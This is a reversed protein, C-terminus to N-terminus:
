RATDITAGGTGGKNYVTTYHTYSFLGEALDIKAITSGQNSVAQFGGEDDNTGYTLLVQNEEQQSRETEFNTGALIEEQVASSHEEFMMNTSCNSGKDSSLRSFAEIIDKTLDNASVFQNQPTGRSSTPTSSEIDILRGVPTDFTVSQRMHSRERLSLEPEDLLAVSSLNRNTNRDFTITNEESDLSCIQELRDVLRMVESMLESKRPARTSDLRRIQGSLYIIRSNIRQYENAKNATNFDDLESSIESIKDTCIQSAECMDLDAVSTPFHIGNKEHRFCGRLASRKEQVTGVTAMGRIQLEYSLEDSLLRNVEM